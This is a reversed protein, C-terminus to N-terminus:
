PTGFAAKQNAQAALIQAETLRSTWGIVEYFSATATFLGGAFAGISLNASGIAAAGTGSFRLAGDAYVSFQRTAATFALAVCRPAGLTSFLVSTDVNNVSGFKIVLTGSSQMLAFGNGDAQGILAEYVATEPAVVLMLTFDTGAAWAASPLNLYSKPSAGSGNGGLFRLKPRGSPSVELAGANVLRPRVIGAPPTANVGNTSVDNWGGDALSATSSGAWALVAAQDLFGDARYPAILTASDDRILTMAEGLYNSRPKRVSLAFSAPALSNEILGNALMTANVTATAPSSGVDNVARVRFNYSGAATLGILTSTTALSVGDAYTTWASDAALKYDIAYDTPADSSAPATWSLTLTTAGIASVTLGTPANPVVPAVITSATRTAATGSGVTNVPIVEFNYSTLQTLGTVTYTTATVGTVTTWTSGSTPKYRVTYSDTVGASASWTLVATAHTMAPAALTVAGPVVLNVTQATITAWTSTGLANKARARLDYTQNATSAAFQILLATSTGTVDIWTSSSTLKYQVDYGSPIGTTPLAWTARLQGVAVANVQINQPVSPIIAAPAALAAVTSYLTGMGDGIARQAPARYHFTDNRYGSPGQVHGAYAKRTGIQAHVAAYAPANALGLTGLAGSDALLEPMMSGLIFPCNAGNNINTRFGDVLADLGTQYDWPFVDTDVRNLSLLDTEGQIGCMLVLRASPGLATLCANTQDIASWYLDGVTSGGTPRSPTPMWRSNWLGTGSASTNIIVVRRSPNLNVLRTALAQGFNVSAGFAGGALAFGSLLIPAASSRALTFGNGTTGVTKYTITVVGASAAYSAVNLSANTTQATLYTALATATASADAGIAVQAGTAGSAVFTITVGNITVTDGASPNATFSARGSAASSPVVAGPLAVGRSPYINPPNVVAASVGGAWIWIDPSVVDTLPDYESNVGATNSQGWMLVVDYGLPLASGGSGGGIAGDAGKAAVKTWKTADFTSTASHATTCVYTEGLYTVVSAPPGVVYATSATWTTVETWAAPGPASGGGGPPLQSVPVKGTEDLGAIGNPQGIQFVRRRDVPVDSINTTNADDAGFVIENGSLPDNIGTM